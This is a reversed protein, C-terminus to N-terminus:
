PLRLNYQQLIVEGQQLVMWATLRFILAWRAPSGCSRVLSARSVPGSVPAIESRGMSLSM